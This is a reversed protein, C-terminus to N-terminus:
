RPLGRLNHGTAALLFFVTSVLGYVMWGTTAVRGDELFSAFLSVAWFLFWTGQLYLGVMVVPRLWGALVGTMAIAGFTAVMAGWTYCTGPMLRATAFGPSAFRDPGGWILGLGFVVAGCSLVRVIDRHTGQYVAFTAERAL